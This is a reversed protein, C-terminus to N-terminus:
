QGETAAKILRTRENISRNGIEHMVFTKADRTWAQGSQPDYDHPLEIDEPAYADIGVSKSTNITRLSHEYFGVVVTKGMNGGSLQVAAAAVGDTSLYTLTGDAAIKPNISTLHKVPIRDGISQAIEWQAYVPIGTQKYIEVVTDALAVNMPGPVQNGNLIVRNGFAFALITDAEEIPLEEGKWTLIEDMLFKATYAAVDSNGLQTTLKAEIASELEADTLTEACIPAALAVGALLILLKINLM